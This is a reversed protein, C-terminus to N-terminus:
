GKIQIDEILRARLLIVKEQTMSVKDIPNRLYGHGHSVYVVAGAVAVVPGIGPITLLRRSLDHRKAIAAIEDELAAAASCVAEHPPLVHDSIVALVPDSQRM